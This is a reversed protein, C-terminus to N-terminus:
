HLGIEGDVGAVVVVDGPGLALLAVGALGGGDELLGSAVRVVLRGVVELDVGDNLLLGGLVLVELGDELVM